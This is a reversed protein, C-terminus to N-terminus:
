QSDFISCKVTVKSEVFVTRMKIGNKIVDDLNLHQLTELITMYFICSFFACLFSSLSSPHKVEPLCFCVFLFVILLTMTRDSFGLFDTEV